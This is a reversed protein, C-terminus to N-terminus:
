DLFAEIQTQLEPLTAALPQHNRWRKLTQQFREVKGCTTPRNPTSNIQVVGLRRLEVELQNRGGKGGALRTTFVM